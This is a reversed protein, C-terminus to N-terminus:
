FIKINKITWETAGSWFYLVFYVENLDTAPTVAPLDILVTAPDAYNAEDKGGNQGSQVYAGEANSVASSEPVAPTIALRARKYSSDGTGEFTLQVKEYNSLKYGDAFTVKFYVGQGYNDTSYNFGIGEDLISIDDAGLAVVDDDEFVMIKEPASPPPAVYVTISKIVITIEGEVTKHLIFHSIPQGGEKGENQDASLKIGKGTESVSIDALPFEFTGTANWSGGATADGIHYRFKDAADEGTTVEADMAIYIDNNRRAAFAAKQDATLKISVRQYQATFPVTLGAVSYVASPVVTSINWVGSPPATEDFENELDLELPIFGDPVSYVTPPEPPFSTGPVTPAVEVEGAWFKLNTIKYTGGEAHTYISFWVEGDLYQLRSAYVIEMEVHQVGSGNVLPAPQTGAYWDQGVNIPSVILEKNEVYPTVDEEDATAYLYLRKNSNVSNNNNFVPAIAEWDFSIKGYDALTFEGLDLKFRLVVNGYNTNAGAGYAYQYGNPSSLYTLTGPDIAGNNDGDKLIKATKATATGGGTGTTSFSVTFDTADPNVPPRVVPPPEVPGPGPGPGTTTTTEDPDAPCGTFVFVMTLALILAFIWSYKKM